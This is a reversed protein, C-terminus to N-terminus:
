VAVLVRVDLEEPAKVIVCASVSPSAAEATDTRSEAIKWKSNRAPTAIIL